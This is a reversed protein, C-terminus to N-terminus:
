YTQYTDARQPTQSAKVVDDLRRQQQSLNDSAGTVEKEEEGGSKSHSSDNLLRLNGAEPVWEQGLRYQQQMEEEYRQRNELKGRFSQQERQDQGSNLGQVNSEEKTTIILGKREM